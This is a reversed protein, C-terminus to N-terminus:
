YRCDDNVCDGQWEEKEQALVHEHFVQDLITVMDTFHSGKPSNIQNFFLIDISLQRQKKDRPPKVAVM